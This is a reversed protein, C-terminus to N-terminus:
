IYDTLRLGLKAAIANLEKEEAPEMEGDAFAVEIAMILVMEADEKNSKCDEIERMVTLRGMRYSAELVKCQKDFAQGVEVGFAELAKSGDLIAQIKVVEAEELEGDAFAMLAASCVMAEMLDKNGAKISKTALDAGAGKVKKMFGFM